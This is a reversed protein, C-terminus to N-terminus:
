PSIKQPFLQQIIGAMLLYLSSSILAIKVLTNIEFNQWACIGALLTWLISIPLSIKRWRETRVPHIFKLNTFMSIALLVVIVLIIQWNPKTALLVLVLMNWCGPFGAFSNDLTKMRTDSFYLASCFAIVIICVWGSWGNLLGSVFLAYAPIFVYTLYDIILDLLVGDYEPANEKVNYHRALPGDFGDVIFALTLYLFMLDWRENVASLMALIALIAGIATFYHVLLAKKRLTFM